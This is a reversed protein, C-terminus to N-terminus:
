IGLRQHLKVVDNFNLEEKGLEKKMKRVEEGMNVVTAGQAQAVANLEEKTAGVLATAVTNNKGTISGAKPGQAAAKSSSSASEFWLVMKDLDEHCEEPINRDPQSLINKYFIGKSFLYQQFYTLDLIRKGYFEFVSDKALMFANLFFPTAAIKKLNDESFRLMFFNHDSILSIYEEDDMEEYEEKSFLLNILEKEKFLGKRLLEEGRKKSVYREVTIGILDDRQTQLDKYEKKLKEIEKEIGKKQSKLFIKNIKRENEQIKKEISLFSDEEEKTWNETEHLFKLKEKETPIKRLEAEKKLDQCENDFKALDLDSFHKIYVRRSGFDFVSFGAIIDGFCIRYFQQILNSNESM